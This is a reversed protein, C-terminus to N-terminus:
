DSDTYTVVGTPKRTLYLPCKVHCIRIYIIYDTSIDWFSHILLDGRDSTLEAVM